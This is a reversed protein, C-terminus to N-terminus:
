VEAKADWKVSIHLSYILGAPTELDAKRSSIFNYAIRAGEGGDGDNAPAERIM